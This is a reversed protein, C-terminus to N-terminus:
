NNWNESKSKKGMSERCRSVLEENIKQWLGRRNWKNYYENVIKYNPYEKPLYRWQCGTRSQYFIANVISRRDIKIKRGKKKYAFYEKIIEWEEDRLESPYSM